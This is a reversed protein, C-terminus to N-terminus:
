SSISITAIDSICSVPRLFVFSTASLYLLVQAGDVLFLLTLRLNCNTYLFYSSCFEEPEPGLGIQTLLDRVM